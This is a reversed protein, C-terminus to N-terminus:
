RGIEPESQFGDNVLSRHSSHHARRGMEPSTLPSGNPSLGSAVSAGHVPQLMRKLADSDFGALEGKSAGSAPENLMNETSRSRHRRSRLADRGEDPFGNSGPGDVLSYDVSKSSILERRPAGAGARGSASRRVDHVLVDSSLDGQVSYAREYYPHHAAQHPHQQMPAAQHGHHHHYGAGDPRAGAYLQAPLTGFQGYGPTVPQGYYGTRALSPHQPQGGPHMGQYIGPQQPYNRPIAGQLTGYYGQYVPQQQQM